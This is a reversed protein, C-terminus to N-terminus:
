LVAAALFALMMFVGVLQSRRESLAFVIPDGPMENRRVTIWLHILWYALLVCVLLLLNPQAYLRRTAEDQLYLTLVIVASFGNAVGIMSMIELDGPQYGRRSIVAGPSSFQMVLEACRKACALSLFLFLCFGLLWTSTALGSALAGALVRITYLGALWIVDVGVMAKIRFSYAFTAAIYAGLPLFLVPKGFWTIEASAILLGLAAIAGARPHLRGAAIPRRCKSPHHRDDEIDLLDNILYVASACLSFAVFALMAPLVAGPDAWRHAALVPLFILLNKVWQQPRMGALLDSARGQAVDFRLAAPRPLRREVSPSLNVTGIRAAAEWLALDAASDGIYTFPRAGFRARLAQLKAAGKLNRGPGSGLVSTFCGLHAAVAAVQDEAAGSALCLEAGQGARLRLWDLLARNYPLTAPDIAVRAAVQAKLRDRHPLGRLLLALARPLSQGAIQCLGEVLLDSRILTGDLDVVILEPLGAEPAVADAGGKGGQSEM